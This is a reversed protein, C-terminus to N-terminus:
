RGDPESSPSSPPSGHEATRDAVYAGREGMPREAGVTSDRYTQLEMESNIEAGLLIIFATLFFWVMLIIVAAFSGYMENYNGFNDMYYSFLISGILWLVTAVVSGVSVWRFEPSRRNPAVKYVLGLAAIVLFALLPWRLWSIVTKLIEPINISEILTPFVVVLATAIIGGIIGGLTFLLTIAHNLFFGRTNRENYAINVGEFVASTGNHASWLAFLLSLVLGWSLAQGAGSAIDSLIGAMLQAAEEPLITAVQNMQQEVDSPDMVLGYISIAAILTPFLALFFYYAVGSAVISINDESIQHIVRSIIEKWGRFPIETPKDAGTGRDSERIRDKERAM